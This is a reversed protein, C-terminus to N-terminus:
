APGAEIVGARLLVDAARAFETLLKELLPEYGRDQIAGPVITVGGRPDEILVGREILQAIHRRVTERPLGTAAAIASRSMPVVWERPLVATATFEPPVNRERMLKQINGTVVTVYILLMSPNMTEHESMIRHTSLFMNLLPFMATRWHASMRGPVTAVRDGNAM